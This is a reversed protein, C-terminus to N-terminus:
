GTLETVRPWGEGVRCPRPLEHRNDILGNAAPIPGHISRHNPVDMDNWGWRVERGLLFLSVVPVHRRTAYGEPGRCGEGIRRRFIEIKTKLIIGVVALESIENRQVILLLLEKWDHIQKNRWFPLDIKSGTPSGRGSGIMQNHLADNSTRKVPRTM